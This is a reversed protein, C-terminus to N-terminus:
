TLRIQAHASRGHAANTPCAPDQWCTVCSGQSPYRGDGAGADQETSWGTAAVRKDTCGVVRRDVPTLVFIADQGFEAGLALADTEDMGIVAAGLEVHTWSLNGGAAPWWTVARRELEAALRAEAEANATDSAIRGGPNHATMVYIVCAEPDPYKGVTHTVPGPRVWVVGSPAEIWIVATVYANWGCPEATM